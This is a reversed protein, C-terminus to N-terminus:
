EGIRGERLDDLYESVSKGGTFNPDYLDQYSIKQPVELVVASDAFVQQMKGHDDYAIRGHIRVLRRDWVNPGIAIPEIRSRIEQNIICTVDRRTRRDKIKIAPRNNNTTIDVIVGEISGIESHAPPYPHEPQAKLRSIAERATQQNVVLTDASPGHLSLETEGIGNMNRKLIRLALEYRRGSWDPPYEGRIVAQINEEFRAKMAKAPITVDVGPYPSIAEAEVRLPPSNTSAMVLGWTVGQDDDSLLNIYDLVQEMADRVTLFDPHSASPRVTISFREAM